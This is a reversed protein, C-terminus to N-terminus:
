PVQLVQLGAGIVLIDGIERVLYEVSDFFEVHAPMDGLRTIIVIDAVLWKSINEIDGPREAGIEM